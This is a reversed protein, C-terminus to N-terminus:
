LEELGNKIFDLLGLSVDPSTLSELGDIAEALEVSDLEFVSGGKEYRFLWHVKPADLLLTMISAPVNGIPPTDISSKSFSAKVTTGEGLKSTLSFEGGCLEAAQKLFPLGMGVRRTTRSTCFPDVVAKVREADMGKGNDRVEIEYFGNERVFVEIKSAQAAIGNQSIDLLHASLDDLM